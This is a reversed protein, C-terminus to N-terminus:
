RSSAYPESKGNVLLFSLEFFKNLLLLSSFSPHSTLNNQRGREVREVREGREVRGLHSSSAGSIAALGRLTLPIMIRRQKLIRGLFEANNNKTM